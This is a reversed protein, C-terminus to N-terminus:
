KNKDRPLVRACVQVSGYNTYLAQIRGYHHNQYNQQLNNKLKDYAIQFKFEQKRASSYGSVGSDEPYSYECVWESNDWDLAQQSETALVTSSILLVAIFVSKM